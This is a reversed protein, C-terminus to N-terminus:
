AAPGKPQEIRQLTLKEAIAAWLGFVGDAHRANMEEIRRWANHHVAIAKWGRRRRRGSRLGVAFDAALRQRATEIGHQPREFVYRALGLAQGAPPGRCVGFAVRITVGHEPAQQRGTGAAVRMLDM